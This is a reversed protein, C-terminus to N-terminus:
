GRWRPAGHMGGHRQSVASGPPAVPGVPALCQLGGGTQRSGAPPGCGMQGGIQHTASPSVPSVVPGVPAVGGQGGQGSAAEPAGPVALPTVPGVPIQRGNGHGTGDLVGLPAVVGAITQGCGGIHGSLLLATWLETHRGGHTTASGTPAVVSTGTHGRIGLQGGGGAWATV